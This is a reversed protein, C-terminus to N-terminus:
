KGTFKDFLGVRKTTFKKKALPSTRQERALQRRRRQLEFKGTKEIYSGVSKTPFIDEVARQARQWDSEGPKKPYIKYLDPQEMMWPVAERRSLWGKKVFAGKDVTKPVAVSKLPKQFRNQPVVQKKELYPM